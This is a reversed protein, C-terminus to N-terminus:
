CSGKFLSEDAKKIVADAARIAEIANPSHTTEKALMLAEACQEVIASYAGEVEGRTPRVSNKVMSLFVETAVITPKDLLNGARNIKRELEPVNEGFTGGLEAGLDGRAVMLADAAQVITELNEIGEQCEIKAIIPLVRGYEAMMARVFFIDEPYRVFSVAVLDVDNIHTKLEALDEPPTTPASIKTGPLNVGKHNWIIGGVLIKAKVTGEGTLTDEHSEIAELKITGDIMTILDGPKVDKAFQPYEIPILKNDGLVTTTVFTVVDGKQLSIDNLELNNPNKFKGVRIKPGPLDLMITVKKDLAASAERINKIAKSVEERTSHALSIRAVDLGASILAQMAPTTSKKANITAVIRERRGEPRPGLIDASDMRAPSLSPPHQLLAKEKERIKKRKIEPLVPFTPLNKWFSPAWNAVKSMGVNMGQNAAQVGWSCGLTMTRVCRCGLNWISEGPPLELVEITNNTTNRFVRGGIHILNPCYSFNSPLYPTAYSTNSLAM